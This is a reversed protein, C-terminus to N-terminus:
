SDMYLRGKVLPKVGDKLSSLAIHGVEESPRVDVVRVELGALL